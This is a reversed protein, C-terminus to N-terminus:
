KRGGFDLLAMADFVEQDGLGALYTATTAVNSHGLQRSILPIPIHKRAMDVALAHRFGHPHIRRVIGAKRRLDYLAQRFYAQYLPGGKSPGEVTCFVPQDITFGALARIILWSHVEDLANRTIGSRRPKGGKGRQVWVTGHEFDLDTPKLLLAEHIRLGSGRLLAILARNRPGPLRNTPCADMLAMVEDDTPPDAPFKKGKNGPTGGARYGKETIRAPCQDRLREPMWRKPTVRPLARWRWQCEVPAPVLGDPTVLFARIM